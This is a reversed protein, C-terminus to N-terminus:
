PTQRATADDAADASAPSGGVTIAADLRRIIHMMEIRDSVSAGGLRSDMEMLARKSGSNSVASLASILEQLYRRDLNAWGARRFLHSPIAARCKADLDAKAVPELSCAAGTRLSAYIVYMDQECVVDSDGRRHMDRGIGTSTRDYLVLVRDSFIGADHWTGDGEGDLYAGGARVPRGDALMDRGSVLGASTHYMHDGLREIWQELPIGVRGDLGGARACLITSILHLGSLADRFRKWSEKSVIVTGQTVRTSPATYQKKWRGFRCGHVAVSRAPATVSGGPPRALRNQRAYKGLTQVGLREYDGVLRVDDPRFVIISPDHKYVRMVLDATLRKTVLIPHYSDEIMHTVPFIYPQGTFCNMQTGRALALDMVEANHPSVPMMVPGGHASRSCRRYMDYIVMSGPSAFFEPIDMDPLSFLRRDIAADIRTDLLDSGADSMRERDPTPKYRREDLINAYINLSCGAYKGGYMYNIPIGCLYSRSPPCENGPAYTVVVDVDADSIEMVYCDGFTEDTIKRSDDIQRNERTWDNYTAIDLLDEAGVKSYGDSGCDRGTVKVYTPVGSLRACDKIMGIIHSGANVDKRYTMTIRTGYFDMKPEPLGTQFGLGGKGMVAYCDGGRTRTELIMVDSICTYAARGFGFQGSEKGDFNTSRGLVCYVDRFVEWSMGLSDRGELVIRREDTDVSLFIEPAAGHERRATRCARAENAYLERIGSAPSAYLDRSIRQAVVDSELSTDIFGDRTGPPLAGGANGPAEMAVPGETAIVPTYYKKKKKKSM